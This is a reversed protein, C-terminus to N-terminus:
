QVEQLIRKSQNPNWLSHDNNRPKASRKFNYIFKRSRLIGWIIYEQDSARIM